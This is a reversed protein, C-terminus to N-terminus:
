RSRSFEAQEIQIVGGLFYVEDPQHTLRLAEECAQMAEPYRHMLAYTVAMQYPIGETHLDLARAKALTALADAYHLESGQLTAYAFQYDVNTPDATIAAAM